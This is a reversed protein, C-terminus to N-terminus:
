ISQENKDEVTEPIYYYNESDRKYFKKKRDIFKGSVLDMAKEPNKGRILITMPYKGHGCCSAITKVEKPLFFNINHILNKICPDIRTDGSKKDIKCM